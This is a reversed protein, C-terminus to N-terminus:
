SAVLQEQIRRVCRRPRLECRIVRKKVKVVRYSAARLFRWGNACTFIRRPSTAIAVLNDRENLAM